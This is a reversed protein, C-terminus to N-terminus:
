HWPTWCLVFAGLIITITRLAKRARNEKKKQQKRRLREAETRPDSRGYRSVIFHWFATVTMRPLSQEVRTGSTQNENASSTAVVVHGQQGARSVAEPEVHQQERQLQPPSPPKIVVEPKDVPVNETSRSASTASPRSLQDVEVTSPRRLDVANQRQLRSFHRSVRSKVDADGDVGLPGSRADPPWTCYKQRYAIVSFPSCDMQDVAAAQTFETNSGRVVAVENLTEAASVVGVPLTTHAVPCLTWKRNTVDAVAADVGHYDRAILSSCKKTQFATTRTRQSVFQGRTTSTTLRETKPRCHYGRGYRYRSLKLSAEGSSSDSVESSDEDDDPVPQGSV